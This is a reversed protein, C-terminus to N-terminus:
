FFKPWRGYLPHPKHLYDYKQQIRIIQEDDLVGAAYLYYFLTSPYITSCLVPSLADIYSNQLSSDINRQYFWMAIHNYGVVFVLVTKSLVCCM